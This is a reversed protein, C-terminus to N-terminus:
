SIGEFLASGVRVITSGAAIAQELDQTMGMSLHHLSHPASFRSQWSDRLSRLEEFTRRAEDLSGEMAAMGMLGQVQVHKLPAVYEPLKDWEDRGFGSKTEEHTLHLELLVVQVKNLKRAEEDIAQLLRQSDVSHIMSVLPLTRAVKNRQLHGVLHWEVQPLVAAKEWIVQPRSEGLPVPLCQHLWGTTVADVYKTIPLLQVSSRPRGADNCARQIREEVRALNRQIRASVEVADAM